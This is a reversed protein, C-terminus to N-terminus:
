VKKFVVIANHGGFGFTNSMAVNVEKEIAEGTVFQLGQPIEPDINETNITPPIKGESIAKVSLIGEISGAAGLLHGTMSKTASISLNKLNNGFVKHIAKTESIDGVPTSTAHPNLYDVQDPSIGGEKLAIEMAKAAGLGEPHTSTMHYADATMSAGVIEAYIKAGRKKAHEYEELIMAGAGEGMVFGDRDVDFPRSAKAPDDNRQSMAKMASFGGIPSPSIPSESGGTVFVKAKGMKIYNYADMISTNSTACASVTTYNIGMLGFKMSIWGSTMNSILKPVFFPSFRPNGGNSVYDGWEEEFTIMGGQGTGWVVGADFPDMKSIDLGSDELAESAVYLGYQTFLDSRKIENRDLRSTPDFDAIECAFQTRFKSADFKSITAAGSTGAVAKDWFTDINNGLPTIAGLGTIVVRIDQM